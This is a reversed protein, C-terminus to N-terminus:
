GETWIKVQVVAGMATGTLPHNWIGATPDGQIKCTLGRVVIEDNSNLTKAQAEGLYLSFGTVVPNRYNEQNESSGRPEVAVGDIDVKQTSTVPNGWDDYEDEAATMIVTVTEGNPYPYPM